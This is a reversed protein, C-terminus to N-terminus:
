NLFIPTYMGRLFFSNNIPGVVFGVGDQYDCLEANENYYRTSVVFENNILAQNNRLLDVTKIKFDSREM